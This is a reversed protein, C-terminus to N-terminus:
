QGDVIGPYGLWTRLYGLQGVHYAEHYTLFAIAGRLTRDPIPFTGAAATSLEADRLQELRTALHESARVIAERIEPLRPAHVDPNPRTQRAFQAAWPLDVGVNLLAALRCRYVAIHGALWLVPNSDPGPRRWAEEDTLGDLAKGILRDNVRLLQAFSAVVPDM